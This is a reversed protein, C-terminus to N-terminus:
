PSEPAPKPRRAWATVAVFMGPSRDWPQQRRAQRAAGALAACQAQHYQDALQARGLMRVTTHHMM